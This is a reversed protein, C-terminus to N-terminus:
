ETCTDNVADTSTDYWNTSTVAGNTIVVKIFADKHVDCSGWCNTGNDPEATITKGDGILELEGSTMDYYFYFAGSKYDDEVAKVAAASKAARLNAADTAAKSSNLSSNFSPVAIAVLIVIIAIVILMEMLTFGKKNLLKKMISMEKRRFYKQYNNYIRLVTHTPDGHVAKNFSCVEM